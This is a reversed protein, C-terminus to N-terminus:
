ETLILYYINENIHAISQKCLMKLDDGNQNVINQFHFMYIMYSVITYIELNETM